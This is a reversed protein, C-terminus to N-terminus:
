ILSTNYKHIQIYVTEREKKNVTCCRLSSEYPLNACLPQFMDMDVRQRLENLQIQLSIVGKRIGIWGGGFLWGEGVGMILLSVHVSPQFHLSQLQAELHAPCAFLQYWIFKSHIPFCIHILCNKHHFSCFVTSHCFNLSSPWLFMYIATLGNAM